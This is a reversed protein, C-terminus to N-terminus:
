NSRFVYLYLHAGEDVISATEKGRRDLPGFLRQFVLKILELM